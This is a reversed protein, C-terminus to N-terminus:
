GGWKRCKAGGDVAEYCTFRSDAPHNPLRTALMSSEPATSGPSLDSDRHQRSVTKTLSNM